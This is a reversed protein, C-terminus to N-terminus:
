GSERELTDDLEAFSESRSVAITSETSYKTTDNNEASQLLTDAVGILNMLEDGDNQNESESRQALEVIESCESQESTSKESVDADTKGIEMGSVGSDRKSASEM